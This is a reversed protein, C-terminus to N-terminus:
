KDVVYRYTIYEGATESERTIKVVQGRQLGFYRAVPDSKLIRPLQFEKVTYEELVAKKQEPTLLEHKPVLKHETINVLLEAEEFVELTGRGENVFTKAFSSVKTQIILIGKSIDEAKMRSIVSKVEKVGTNKVENSFVVCIKEPKFDLNESKMYKKADDNIKYTTIELKDRTLNEGGFNEMFKERTMKIEEDGVFYGRDKLM